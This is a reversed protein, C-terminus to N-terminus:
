QFHLCITCGQAKPALCHFAPCFTYWFHGMYQMHVRIANPARKNLHKSDTLFCIYFSIMFFFLGVSRQFKKLNEGFFLRISLHNGCSIPLYNKEYIHPSILARSEAIRHVCGATWTYLRHKIRTLLFWCRVRDRTKLAFTYNYSKQLALSIYSHSSGIGCSM